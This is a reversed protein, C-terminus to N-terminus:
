IFLALIRSLRGITEEVAEFEAINQNRNEILHGLSLHSSPSILQDVIDIADQPLQRALQTYRARAEHLQEQLQEVEVVQM